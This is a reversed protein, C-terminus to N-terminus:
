KVTQNQKSEESDYNMQFIYDTLSFVNRVGFRM